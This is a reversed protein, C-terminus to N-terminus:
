IGSPLTPADSDRQLVFVPSPTSAAPLCTTRQTLGHSCSREPEASEDSTDVPLEIVGPLDEHRGSLVEARVDPFALTQMGNGRNAPDLGPMWARVLRDSYASHTGPAQLLLGCWADGYKQYRRITTMVVLAPHYLAKNRYWSVLSRLRRQPWTGLNFPVADNPARQPGPLHDVAGILVLGVKGSDIWDFADAYPAEPNQVGVILPAPGIGVPLGRKLRELDQTPDTGLYAGQIGQAIAHSLLCRALADRSSGNDSAVTTLGQTLCDLWRGHQEMPLVRSSPMFDSKAVRFSM